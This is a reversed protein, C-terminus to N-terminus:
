IGGLVKKFRVIKQSDEKPVEYDEKKLEYCCQLCQPENSTGFILVQGGCRPCQM